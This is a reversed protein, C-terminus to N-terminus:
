EFIKTLSNFDETQELAILLKLRAKQGTLGNAFIVGIDKLQKGGGDYGYTPQVIGQYCRSVLVVPIDTKIMKQIPKVTTKPLNGQGLGEIVLGDPKAQYIANIIHDDMGAFAKLLFVNKTIKNVSFNSRAVITHHFIISDKTIIGIPGYQPSQFTAVNSTSTKTVNNATHIEDNMVVLVGKNKADDNVAVRLSSILNYLADSGIENSSRMAGTLIVPKDTNIVLDLFYATEELTDTGHTIVIGDYSNYKEEIIEALNLMEIPTIQPSPLSFAIIEDVNAYTNYLYSLETLPHKNTTTVEGTQKNELMSITGGTHILLINKM